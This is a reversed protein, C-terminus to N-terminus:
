NDFGDPKSVYASLSVNYVGGCIFSMNMNSAAILGTLLTIEYKPYPTTSITPIVKDVKLNITTPTAEFPIDKLEMRELNPMNSAFKANRIVVKAMKTKIDFIVDYRADKNRYPMNSSGTETIVTSVFNYNIEKPNSVIKYDGPVNYEIFAQYPPFTTIRGRVNTIKFEPNAMGNIQPTVSAMEFVYWYRDDSIEVPINNMTFTTEGSLGPIVANHATINVKRGINDIAFSYNGETLSVDTSGEVFTRSILAQTLTSESKPDDGCSTLCLIAIAFFLFKKM